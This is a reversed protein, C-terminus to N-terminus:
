RWRVRREAPVWRCAFKVEARRPSGGLDGGCAKANRGRGIWAGGCSGAEGGHVVVYDAMDCVRGPVMPISAYLLQTRLIAHFAGAPSEIRRGDLSPAFLLWALIVVFALLSGAFIRLPRVGRKGSRAGDSGDARPWSRPACCSSSSRQSSSTF